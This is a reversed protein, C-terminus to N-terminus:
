NLILIPPRHDVFKVEFRRNLAQQTEIDDWIGEISYQSTIIIKKPRIAVAGGKTEALFAYRDSWIKLHHGLVDHKKDLDDLIVFEENQYGDWWKNAMKLYADPYMLRAGRSKGAGAPGWIWVGSVGDLDDPKVMHDKKIEKLTRYFKIFIDSPIEEIRGEVAAKRADDWRVIELDGKRKNSVPKNEPNVQFFHGEKTCYTFNADIDGKAVEFHARPILKTVGALTKDSKFCIYGQLHHTGTDPAIEQGVVAYRCEVHEVNNLEEESYNNLTFCWNRSRSM